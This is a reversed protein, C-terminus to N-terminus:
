GGPTPRPVGPCSAAALAEASSIFRPFPLSPLTIRRPSTPFGIARGGGGRSHTAMKPRSSLSLWGSRGRLVRVLWNRFVSVRCSPPPVPLLSVARHSASAPRPLIPLRLSLPFRESRQQSDACCGCRMRLLPLGPSTFAKGAINGRRYKAPVWTTSFWRFCLFCSVSQTKTKREQKKNTQKSLLM